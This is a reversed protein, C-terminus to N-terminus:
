EKSRVGQVVITGTQSPNLQNHYSWSGIKTFTFTYSQGANAATKEDFGPYDTNKPYPGSATWMKGSSNNVFTVTDGENITTTFPVYGSDTLSVTITKIEPVTSTAEVPTSSATLSNTTPPSYTRSKILAISLVIIALGSVIMITIASKRGHKKFPPNIPNQPQNM